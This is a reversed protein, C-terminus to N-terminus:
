TWGNEDLDRSTVVLGDAANVTPVVTTLVYTRQEAGSGVM